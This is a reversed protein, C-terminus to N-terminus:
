RVAKSVGLFVYLEFGRRETSRWVVQEAQRLVLTRGPRAVLRGKWASRVLPETMGEAELPLLWEVDVTYECTEGCVVQVSASENLASGIWNENNVDRRQFQEIWRTRQRKAEATTGSLATVRQDLLLTTTGREKLAGLLDPFTRAELGDPEQFPTQEAAAPDVLDVRVIRADVVWATPESEGGRAAPIGLSAAGLLLLGGLLARLAKHRAVM